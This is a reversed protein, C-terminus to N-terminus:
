ISISVKNSLIWNYYEEEVYFISESLLSKGIVKKLQLGNKEPYIDRTNKKAPEEEKDKEKEEM